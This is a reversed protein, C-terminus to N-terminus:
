FVLSLHSAHCVGHALRMSAITCAGGVGVVDMPMQVTVQSLRMRLVEVSVGIVVRVVHVLEIASQRSTEM